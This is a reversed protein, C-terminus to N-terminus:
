SASGADAGYAGQEVDREDQHRGALWARFDEDLIRILGRGNGVRYSKLRGAKVEARIFWESCPTARACEAITHDMPLTSGPDAPREETTAIKAVTAKRRAPAAADEADTKPEPELEFLPDMTAEIAVRDAKTLERRPKPIM